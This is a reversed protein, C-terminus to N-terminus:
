RNNNTINAKGNGNKDLNKKILDGNDLKNVKIDDKSESKLHVNIENISENVNMEAKPLNIEIDTNRSSQLYNRNNIDNDNDKNQM